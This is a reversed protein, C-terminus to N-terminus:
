KLLLRNAFPNGSFERRGGGWLSTISVSIMAVTVTFMMLLNLVNLLPLLWFKLLIILNGFSDFTREDIDIFELREWLDSANGYEDGSATLKEIKVTILLEVVSLIFVDHNIIPIIITPWKQFFCCWSTLKPSTKRIIGLNVTHSVYNQSRTSRPQQCHIAGEPLLLIWITGYLSPSCRHHHHFMWLWWQEWSHHSPDKTIIAPEWNIGSYSFHM